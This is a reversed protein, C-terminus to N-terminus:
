QTETTPASSGTGPTVGPHKHDNYIDRDAQMTRTADSVDQDAHIDGTAEVRPSEIRVKTSAKVLLTDTVIEVIRGRRLHVHDGEDTHLAVEGPQLEIRWRGDISAIVVGHASQGGVPLVIVEAGQLPASAIGYHQMLEAALQEGALGTVQVPPLTATADLRVLVARLAQRVGVQARQATQRMLRQLTM